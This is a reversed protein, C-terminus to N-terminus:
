DIRTLFKEVQSILGGMKEISDYVSSCVLGHNAGEVIYSCDAVKKKNSDSLLHDRDGYVFLTNAKIRDPMTWDVPTFYVCPMEQRMRDLFYTGMSKALYVIRKYSRVQQLVDDIEKNIVELEDKINIKDQSLQYGFNIALVDYNLKYSLGILYYFLPAEMTYGAGPLMVMLTDNGGDHYDHKLNSKWKSQTEIRRIMEEEKCFLPHM